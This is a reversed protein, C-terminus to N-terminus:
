LLLASAFAIKSRLDSKDILYNEDSYKAQIGFFNMNRVRLLHFLYEEWDVRRKFAGINWKGSNSLYKLKRRGRRVKMEDETLIVVFHLIYSGRLWKCFVHRNETMSIGWGGMWSGNKSTLINQSSYKALQKGAWENVLM